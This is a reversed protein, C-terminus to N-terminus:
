LLYEILTHTAEVWSSLLSDGAQGQDQDQAQFLADGDSNRLVPRPEALALSLPRVRSTGLPGLNPLAPRHYGIAVLEVAGRRLNTEVLTSLEDISAERVTARGLEIQEGLLLRLLELEDGLPAVKHQDPPFLLHFVLEEDGLQETLRSITCHILGILLVIRQYSSGVDKFRADVLSPELLFVYARRRRALIAEDRSYYLLEAEVYRVDFIDIHDTANPDADDMYILESSVLNELTGSTTIGSFGGTPYESEDEQSVPAYGTILPRRRRLRRPLARDLESAAALAQACGIRQSLTRLAAFNELLFVDSEHLLSPQRRAAHVLEEYGAALAAVVAATGLRGYGEALLEDKPRKGLRRMVAPSFSHGRVGLRELLQASMAGLAAPLEAPPLRAIADEAAQRLPELGMRGLVHDEYARIAQRLRVDDAPLPLQTSPQAGLLLHGLDALMAPPPMAPREDLLAEVWPAVEALESASAQRVRGLCLGAAVFAQAEAADRLENM